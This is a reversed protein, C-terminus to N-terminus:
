GSEYGRGRRHVRKGPKNREAPGADQPAACIRCRGPRPPPRQQQPDAIREIRTGRLAVNRRGEEALVSNTSSPADISGCAPRLDLTEDPQCPPKARLRGCTKEHRPRKLIASTEGPRVVRRVYARPVPKHKVPNAFHCKANEPIRLGRLLFPHLSKRRVHRVIAATPGSQCPPAKGPRSIALGIITPTGVLAFASMAKARYWRM